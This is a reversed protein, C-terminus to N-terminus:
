SLLCFIFLSYIWKKWIDLPQDVKFTDQNKVLGRLAAQPGKRDNFMALNVVHALKNGSNALGEGDDRVNFGVPKFRKPLASQRHAQSSNIRDRAVPRAATDSINEILSAFNHLSKNM